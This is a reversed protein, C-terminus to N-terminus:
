YTISLDEIRIALDDPLLFDQKYGKAVLSNTSPPNSGLRIVGPNSEPPTLIM